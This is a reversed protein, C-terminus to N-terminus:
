EWASTYGCRGPNDSAVGLQAEQLGAAAFRALATQLLATGLGRTRHDPHVGLLDIYGAREERWLRALLFDVPQGDYESVSSLTPDFDHAMLHEERFATFSQPRYDPNAKFSLENLTHLAGADV